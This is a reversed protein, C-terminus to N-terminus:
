FLFLEKVEESLFEEGGNELAIKGMTECQEVLTKKEKPKMSGFAEILEEESFQGSNILPVLYKMVFYNDNYNKELKVTRPDLKALVMELIQVRKDTANSGLLEQLIHKQNPGSINPNAGQELLYEVAHINIDDIAHGLPTKTDYDTLGYTENLYNPTLDDIIQKLEPTMKKKSANLTHKFVELLDATTTTTQMLDNGGFKINTSSTKVKEYSVVGNSNTNRKIETNTFKDFWGNSSM